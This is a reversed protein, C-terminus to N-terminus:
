ENFDVGPALLEVKLIESDDYVIWSNVTKIRLKGDIKEVHKVNLHKDVRDMGGEKTFVLAKDYEFKNLKEQDLVIINKIERLEEEISVINKNYQKYNREFKYENGLAFGIFLIGLGGIVFSIIEM